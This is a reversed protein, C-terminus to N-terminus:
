DEIRFVPHREIETMYTEPPATPDLDFAYRGGGREKVFAQLARAAQEPPAETARIQETRTGKTLTASGNARLNKVWDADAWGAVIWRRGDFTVPSVPTTHPKGSNRGTVTLVHVPGMNETLSPDAILRANLAQVDEPIQSKDM